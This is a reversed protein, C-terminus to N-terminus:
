LSKRPCIYFIHGKELNEVNQFYVRLFRTNELNEMIHPFVAFQEYVFVCEELALQESVKPCLPDKM